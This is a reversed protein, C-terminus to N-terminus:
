QRIERTLGLHLLQPIYIPVDVPPGQFLTRIGRVAWFFEFGPVRASSVAIRNEGRVSPVAGPRHHAIHSM